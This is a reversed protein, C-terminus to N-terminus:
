FVNWVQEIYWNIPNRLTPLPLLGKQMIDIVEDKHGALFDGLLIVTNKEAKNAWLFNNYIPIEEIFQATAVVDERDLTSCVERVKQLHTKWNECLEKENEYGWQRLVRDKQLEKEVEDHFPEDYFNYELTDDAVYDEYMDQDFPPEEDDNIPTFGFEEPLDNEAISNVNDTEQQEENMQVDAAEDAQIDAVPEKQEEEMREKPVDEELDEKSSQNQESKKSKRGARKKKEKEPKEEEQIVEAPEVKETIEPKPEKMAEAEILQFMYVFKIKANVLPDGEAIIGYNKAINALQVQDMSAIPKGVAAGYGDPLISVLADDYLMKVTQDTIDFSGKDIYKNYISMQNKAIDNDNSFDGNHWTFGAAILAKGVARREAVEIYSDEEVSSSGHGMALLNHDNDYVEAAFICLKYKAIDEISSVMSTKISGRQFVSRFWLQKIVYPVYIDTDGNVVLNNRDIGNFLNVNSFMDMNIKKNNLESM